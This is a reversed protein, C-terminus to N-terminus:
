DNKHEYERTRSFKFWLIRVKHNSVPVPHLDYNKLRNLELQFALAPELHRYVLDEKYNMRARFTFYKPFEKSRLVIFTVRRIEHDRLIECNSQCFDECMQSMMNDNDTDAMKVGVNLIYQFHASKDESDSFTPPMFPRAPPSGVPPSGVHLGDILDIDAKDDLYPANM